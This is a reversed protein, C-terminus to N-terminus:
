ARRNWMEIARGETEGWMSAGCAYSKSGKCSVEWQRYVYYVERVIQDTGSCFPCIKLKTGNHTACDDPFDRDERVYRTYDPHEMLPGSTVAIGPTWRIAIRDPAVENMM